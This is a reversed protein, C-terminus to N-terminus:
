DDADLVARLREALASPLYPKAIFSENEGLAANRAITGEAYGSAFLVKLGPQMGKLTDALERGNMKPMVVDTFLLDIGGKHQEALAIADDVSSAAFVRYGYLELVTKALRLVTEEDEVVLVTEDGGQPRPVSVAESAKAEDAVHPFYIEFTSGKGPESSVEIHDGNQTVIGFVTALGLGTGEGAPKTTFFPEFIKDRIDPTMGCGTDSAKLLVYNGPRVDVFEKCDTEDLAIHLIELVFEGGDPMADRANVALNLIIQEIQGRDARIRADAGDCVFRVATDEGMIRQLITQMDELLSRLDIVKPDIVQKRSIALLQRSLQASRNAAEAIEEISRRLGDKTSLQTLLLDTHGLIVTLMNNYDHAVGGAFRGISEMKQAQALQEWLRAREEEAEKRKTIDLTTGVYRLPKGSDDRIVQGRESVHRIQGDPMQLRFEAEYHPHGEDFPRDLAKRVREKDEDHIRRLFSEPVADVAGADYGLLAYMNPTWDAQKTSLDLEWSGLGAVEQLEDIQRSRRRLAKRLETTDSYKQVWGDLTAESIGYSACLAARSAGSDAEELIALIQSESYSKSTM